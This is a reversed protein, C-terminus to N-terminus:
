ELEIGKPSSLTGSWIGIGVKRRVIFYSVINKFLLAVSVCVAIGQLGGALAALPVSILLALTGIITIMLNIRENGSMALVLGCPGTLTISLQGVILIILVPYAALFEAGIQALIFEATAILFIAVPISIASSIRFASQALRAALRPNEAHFASSIQASYISFLAMSSIQLVMAVQFGVRYFGADSASLMSAAIALAYWDGVNQALAVGWLPLSSGFVTKLPVHLADAGRGTHRAMAFAGFVLSLLGGAAGAWLAGEVTDVVGTVLAIATSLPVTLVAIAQGAIFSHQSRLLGDLMQLIGRVLILACLAPLLARPTEAGVLFSWASQGSLGIALAAILLLGGSALAFRLVTSRAVPVGRATAKAFHRVASLNLGLLAAVSFFLASQNVLAYQGTAAAGLNRGIMYTVAFGAIVGVARISLVMVINM